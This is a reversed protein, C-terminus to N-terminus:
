YVLVLFWYAQHNLSMQRFSFISGEPAENIAISIGVTFNNQTDTQKLNEVFSSICAKM